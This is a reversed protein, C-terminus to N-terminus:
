AAPKAAITVTLTAATGDATITGGANVTITTNGGATGETAATLEVGTTLNAQEALTFEGTIAATVIVAANSHNTVTVTASDKGEVWGTEVEDTDDYELNEPDWTGGVNQVHYEFDFATWEIKVGYVADTNTEGGTYDADIAIDYSGVGDNYGNVATAAFATVGMALVMVLALALVFLKKM